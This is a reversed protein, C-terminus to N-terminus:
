MLVPIYGTPRLADIRCIRHGANPTRTKKATKTAAIVACAAALIAVMSTLPMTQLEQSALTAAAKSLSGPTLFTSTLRSFACARTSNSSAFVVGSLIIARM